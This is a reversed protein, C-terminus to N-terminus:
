TGGNARNKNVPNKRLCEEVGSKVWEKETPEDKGTTGCMGCLNNHIFAGCRRGGVISNCVKPEIQTETM